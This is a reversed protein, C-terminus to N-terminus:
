AFLRSRRPFRELLPVSPALSAFARRSRVQQGDVSPEAMGGDHAGARSYAVSRAARRASWCHISGVGSPQQFINSIQQENDLDLLLHGTRRDM